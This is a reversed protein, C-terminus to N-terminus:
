VSATFANLDISFPHRWKLDYNSSCNMQKYQVKGDTFKNPSWYDGFQYMRIPFIYIILIIANTWFHRSKM